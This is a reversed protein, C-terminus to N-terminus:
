SKLMGNCWNKITTYGRINKDESHYHISEGCLIASIPKGCESSKDAEFAKISFESTPLGYVCDEIVMWKEEKWTTYSYDVGLRRAIRLVEDDSLEKMLYEVYIEDHCTNYTNM